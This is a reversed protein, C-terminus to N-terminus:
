FYRNLKECIFLIMYKMNLLHMFFHLSYFISPDVNNNDRKKILSNRMFRKILTYHNVTLFTLRM